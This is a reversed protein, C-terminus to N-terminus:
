YVKKYSLMKPEHLYDLKDFGYYQAKYQAQAYEDYNYEGEFFSQLDRYAKTWDTEAIFVECFAIHSKYQSFDHFDHEIHILEIVKDDKIYDVCFDVMYKPKINLLKVLRPYKESLRKIQELAKGEYAYRTNLHCHDLFIHPHQKEQIMWDQICAAADTPSGPVLVHGAINNHQHYLSEVYTLEYGFRDFFEPAVLREFVSEDPLPESIYPHSILKYQLVSFM